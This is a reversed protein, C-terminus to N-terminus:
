KMAMYLIYKYLLLGCVCMRGCSSSMESLFPCTSVAVPKFPGTRAFKEKTIRLLRNADIRM